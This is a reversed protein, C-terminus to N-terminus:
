TAGAGAHPQQGLWDDLHTPALKDAHDPTLSRQSVKVGYYPAQVDTMVRRADGTATLYRRVIEDIGMAEPGAIEVIRNQPPGLTYDALAAAVDDASIPQMLASPLRVEQGNTSHQAIGGIFEMFQTARVITYPIRSAKILNEQALKARFYGSEQLRETGVVSLAVHHKVGARAEAATLNRTSSEFFKMVAADEWVPANAVDVVVQAGKFATDLGEGTVSNVGSRPSAAVVEHGRDALKKCLKSGILGSGGIVVIKM